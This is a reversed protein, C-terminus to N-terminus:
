LRGGDRHHLMKDKLLTLQTYSGSVPTTLTLGQASSEPQLPMLDTYEQEKEHRPTIYFPDKKFYRTDESFSVRRPVRMSARRLRPSDGDHPGDEAVSRSDADVEYRLSAVSSRRLLGSNMESGPHVLISSPQQAPTSFMETYFDGTGRSGPLTPCLGSGLSATVGSSRSPLRSLSGGRVGSGEILSMPSVQLSPQAHATPGTNQSSQGCQALLNIPPMTSNSYREPTPGGDAGGRRDRDGAASGSHTAKDMGSKRRPGCGNQSASGRREKSAYVRHETGSGHATTSHKSTMRTRQSAQGAGGHSASTPMGQAAAGQRRGPGRLQHWGETRFLRCMNGDNDIFFLSRERVRSHEYLAEVFADTDVPGIEEAAARRDRRQRADGGPQPSLSAREQGPSDGRGRARDVTALAEPARGSRCRLLDQATVTRPSTARPNGAGNRRVFQLYFGVRAEEEDDDVDANNGGASWQHAPSTSRQLPSRVVQGFEPPYWGEESGSASDYNASDAVGGGYRKTSTSLTTQHDVGGFANVSNATTYLPSQETSGGGGKWPSSPSQIRRPSLSIPVVTTRSAPSLVRTANGTRGPTEATPSLPTQLTPPTPPTEQQAPRAAGCGM